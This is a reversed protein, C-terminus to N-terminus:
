LLKNCFPCIIAPPFACPAGARCASRVQGAWALGILHLLKAVDYQSGCVPCGRHGDASPTTKDDQHRPTETYAWGGRRSSLKVRSLLLVAEKTCDQRVARGWHRYRGIGGQPAEDAVSDCRFRGRLRSLRKWSMCRWGVCVEARGGASRSSRKPHFRSNDRTIQGM